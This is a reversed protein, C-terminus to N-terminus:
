DKVDYHWTSNSQIIAAAIELTLLMVQLFVNNEISHLTLILSTLLLLMISHKKHFIGGGNTIKGVKRVDAWKQSVTVWLVIELHHAM